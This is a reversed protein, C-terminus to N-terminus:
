GTLPDLVSSGLYECTLPTRAPRQPRHEQAQPRMKRPTTTKIRSNKRTPVQPSNQATQAQPRKHANCAEEQAQPRRHQPRRGPAGNRAGKRAQPCNQPSTLMHAGTQPPAQRPAALGFIFCGQPWLSHPQAVKRLQQALFAELLHRQIGGKYVNVPPLKFGERQIRVGQDQVKTIKPFIMNTTFSLKPQLKQGTWESDPQASKTPAQPHNRANKSSHKRASTPPLPRAGMHAACGFAGLFLGWMRRSAGALLFAWLPLLAAWLRGCASMM